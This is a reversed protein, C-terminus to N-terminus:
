SFGLSLGLTGLCALYTLSELGSFEIELYSNSLVDMAARQLHGILQESKIGILKLDSTVHAYQM